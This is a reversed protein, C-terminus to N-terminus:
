SALRDTQPPEAADHEGRPPQTPGATLPGYWGISQASLLAQIDIVQDPAQARLGRRTARASRVAHNANVALGGALGRVAPEGAASYWARAAFQLHAAADRLSELRARSGVRGADAATALRRAERPLLVNHIWISMDVRRSHVAAVLVMTASALRRDVALLPASSARGVAPPPAVRGPM